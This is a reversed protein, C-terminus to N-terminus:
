IGKPAFKAIDSRFNLLVFRVHRDVLVKLM